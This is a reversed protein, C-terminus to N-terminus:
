PRARPTSRQGQTDPGRYGTYTTNRHGKGVAAAGMGEEGRLPRAVIMIEVDEYDTLRPIPTSMPDDRQMIYIRNGSFALVTKRWGDIAGDYRFQPLSGKRCPYFWWRINHLLTLENDRAEASVPGLWGDKVPKKPYDGGLMERRRRRAMEVVETHDLRSAWPLHGELDDRDYGIVSVMVAQSTPETISDFSDLTYEELAEIEQLTEEGLGGLPGPGVRGRRTPTVSRRSGQSPTVSRGTRRTVSTSVSRSRSRRRETSPRQQPLPTFEHSHHEWWETWDAAVKAKWSLDLIEQSQQRIQQDREQLRAEAQLARDRWFRVKAQDSLPEPPEVVGSPPPTPPQRPGTGTGPGPPMIIPRGTAYVSQTPISTKPPVDGRRVPMQKAKPTLPGTVTAPRQAEPAVSSSSAQASLKLTQFGKPDKNPVEPEELKM